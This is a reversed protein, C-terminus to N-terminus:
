EVREIEMEMGVGEIYAEPQLMQRAADLLLEFIPQSAVGMALTAATLITIPMYLRWTAGSGERDAGELPSAGEPSASWFAAKWIKLMSYLTLLGTGLAAAAMVGRQAELAARVVAFKAFFGSMPPMGALSMASVFFLAALYPRHRYLGGLDSLEGSGFLREAVGGVLFLNTKVLINHVLYYLGGAVALRGVEDPVEPRTVAVGVLGLAVLMYGIQSIIHVSLIRRFEFM